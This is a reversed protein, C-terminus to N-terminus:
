LTGVKNEGAAQANPIKHGAGHQTERGKRMWKAGPCTSGDVTM